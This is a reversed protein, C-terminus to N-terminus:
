RKRVVFQKSIVTKGAVVRAIYIGSNWSPNVPLEIINHGAILVIKKYALELGSSNMIYIHVEKNEFNGRIKMKINDVAPNPFLTISPERDRIKVSKVNSYSVPGTKQNLRLRYFSTGSYPDDDILAYNYTGETGSSPMIALTEWDFGNASREASYSMFDTEEKVSWTLKVRSDNEPEADFSISPIALIFNNVVVRYDEVEGMDYYGTSNAATMNYASSTIRIRLYTFSGTTLTSPASPWNMWFLQTLPSSPVTIPAISEAADFFGNGNFDLWARLTATSGSNNFVSVQALYTGSSAAFIPVFALGDEYTDEVSTLGKKLWELDENPGLRMKTRAGAVTPTLTDHCAPSWPDPDYTAPADGFDLFPRYPGAADGWSANTTGIPITPGLPAFIPFLTGVANTGNYLSIDADVNYLKEDWGISVQRPIVGVPVYNTRVGTMLNTQYFDVQGSQSGDFDTLVGNSIGFDSWDHINQANVGDDATVGWVQAAPAIPNGAADFDIKWITSKRGAAYAGTGSTGTYGEIGLYLSGNYFSASGSEVGSEYTPIGFTNVDPIVVSITKADVDYKKLTKDNQPNLGVRGTLSYTYYVVRKYPDYAMSNLRDHGPEHFLFYGKGNTPDVYYVDSNVVTLVYQPQGTFPRSIQQYNNPFSGTVCADIDSLWVDGTTASYTMIIRSVPGAITINITGRNDNAAYVIAPATAVVNTTGSGGIVIGSTANAAVVTITQAVSAANTATITVRQSNDLDFLSFKVNAVDADFTMTITTNATSTTTFQVDDGATALSGAHATNTGNEGNLTINAQPAMVFNLRRTGITFNQNYPFAASPYFGTYRANNSPLFDINDWNLEATTYGAACQARAALSFFLMVIALFLYLTINKKM